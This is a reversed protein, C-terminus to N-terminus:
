LSAQQRSELLSVNIMISGKAVNQPKCYQSLFNFFGKRPYPMVMNERLYSILPILLWAGKESIWFITQVFTLIEHGTKCVHAGSPLCLFRPGYKQPVGEVVKVM